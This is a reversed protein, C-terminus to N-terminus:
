TGNEVQAIVCRRYEEREDQTLETGKSIAELREDTVFGSLRDEVDDWIPELHDTPIVTGCFQYDDGPTGSEASLKHRYLDSAIEEKGSFFDEVIRDITAQMGETKM